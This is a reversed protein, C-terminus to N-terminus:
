SRLCFYRKVIKGYGKPFGDADINAPVSLDIGRETALRNAVVLRNTRFVDFPESSFEDSTKFATKILVTSVAFNGTNYPSRSNYQGDTVDYQESYNNSYSRNASLDIKFDPFLDMNATFDLTRTLVHTYNQNFEPYTTLWGRKAAEFRIDDQAGFGFGFSPKATGFFGVGPLYGPLATGQNDTYNIQINKVSTLIGILGDVFINSDKAPVAKVNSV